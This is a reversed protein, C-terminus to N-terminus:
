LLVCFFKLILLFGVASFLFPRGRFMFPVCSVPVWDERMWVLFWTVLVESQYVFRPIFLYIDSASVKTLFGVCFGTFREGNLINM